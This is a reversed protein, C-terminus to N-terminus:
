SSELETIRTELAEIRALLENVDVWGAEPFHIDAVPEVSSFGGEASDFTVDVPTDGITGIIRFVYDGPLTPILDAYYYGTQGWGAELPITISESGFTVEAELSVEVDAPFAEDEGAGHLSLYVEPGNFQGVYAPENRWGFFVEYDGVEQGEHALSSLPALSLMAFFLAFVIILRFKM